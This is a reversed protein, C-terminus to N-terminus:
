RSMVLSALAVPSFLSGSVPTSNIPKSQEHQPRKVEARKSAKKKNLSVDDSSNIERGHLHDMALTSMPDRRGIVSSNESRASVSADVDRHRKRSVKLNVGDPTIIPRASKNEKDRYIDLQEGLFSRPLGAQTNKQYAYDSTRQGSELLKSVQASSNSHMKQDKTAKSTMQVACTEHKTTDWPVPQRGETVMNSGEVTVFRESISVAEKIDVWQSDVWDKSIRLESIPFSAFDNEDVFCICSYTSLLSTITLFLFSLHANNVLFIFMFKAVHKWAPYSARGGVMMGGVTLLPVSRM